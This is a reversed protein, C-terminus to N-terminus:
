HCNAGSLMVHGDRYAKQYGFGSLLAELTGLDYSPLWLDTAPIHKENKPVGRRAAM